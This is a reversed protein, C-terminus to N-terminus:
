LLYLAGQLPRCHSQWHPQAPSGQTLEGPQENPRSLRPRAVHCVCLSVFVTWTTGSWCYDFTLASCCWKGNYKFTFRGSARYYTPCVHIEFIVDTKQCRENNEVLLIKMESTMCLSKKKVLFMVKAYARKISEKKSRKWEKVMIERIWPVVKVCKWVDYQKQRKGVYAGLKEM